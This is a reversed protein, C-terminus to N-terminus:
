RLILAPPSQPHERRGTPQRPAAPPYVMVEVSGNDPTDPNKGLGITKIHTDNLRFNKVLYGRAVAARALALQSDKGTDGKM